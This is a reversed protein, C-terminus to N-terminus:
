KGFARGGTIDDYAEHQSLPVCTQLLATATLWWQKGEWRGDGKTRERSGGKSPM